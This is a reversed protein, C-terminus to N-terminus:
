VSGDDESERVALELVNADVMFKGAWNLYQYPNYEGDAPFSGKVAGRIDPPGDVEITRRVYGNARYAAGAAENFKYAEIAETIERVAKGTEHAIWRNLTEKVSAPDFSPVTACHNIEAFRCANWLKTAFNRYGEVRQTSLKIDRGQAAMAALTFRLADAGYEDILELPDIVNGKSKSMKAGREDRVLAHIYVTHFPADAMFYLGMMMMRAVWFFIIDFGTVLADTPYYRKLEPTDDPWGM